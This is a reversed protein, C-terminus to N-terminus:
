GVVEPMKRLHRIPSCVVWLTTVIMGIAAFGMTERIGIVEALFGSTLAGIATFGVEAVRITANVRGLLEDTVLVQRLTMDLIGYITGCLDGFLQWALLCLMVRWVSGGAFVWGTAAIGQLLLMIMMTRGLGFRRVIRNCLAAGLLAGIGGMTVTLGFLFATLHLTKLAYLTDLVFIASSAFGSMAAVGALGLLIRQNVITHVGEMLEAKWTQLQQNPLLNEHRAVTEGIAAFNHKGTPERVTIRWVTVASFIFSFSDFLIAIPATLTQVLLGTLGPGIVEAVSSTVSLKANGEPLNDRTILWPLYAQYSVDFLLTFIGSVGAVVFFMWLQLTHTLALIPISLLVAARVLDAAILLPRRALRDVWVGIFLGVFSAPLQTTLSLGSMTLPSVGMMLVAAMPLGERTIRSGIESVVQGTWLKMFDQHKWLTM